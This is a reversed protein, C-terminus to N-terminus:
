PIKTQITMFKTTTGKDFMPGLGNVITFTSILTIIKITQMPSGSEKIALV